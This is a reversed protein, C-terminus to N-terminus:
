ALLNMCHPTLLEGIGVSAWLPTGLHTTCFIFVLIDLSAVERPTTIHSFLNRQTPWCFLHWQLGCWKFNFVAAIIQCFVTKDPNKFHELSILTQCVETDEHQHFQYQFLCMWNM